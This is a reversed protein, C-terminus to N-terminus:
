INIGKRIIAQANEVDLRVDSLGTRADGHYDTGGSILLRHRRAIDLYRKIAEQRFAMDYAYFVEIGDLGEEMLPYLIREDFEEYSVRVHDVAPHALIAVANAAKLLKLGEFVDMEKIPSGEKFFLLAGQHKEALTQAESRTMGEAEYIGALREKKTPDPRLVYLAAKERSSSPLLEEWNDIIIQYTGPIPYQITDGDKESERFRERNKMDAKERLIRIVTEPADYQEAIGELNMEFARIIRADIDKLARSQARYRCFDGLVADIRSLEASLNAETIHPFYGLLHITNGTAEHVLSLEIGPIIHKNESRVTVKLRDLCRFFPEVAALTDHDTVAVYELGKEGMVQQALCAPSTLGDLFLYAPASQCIGYDSSENM